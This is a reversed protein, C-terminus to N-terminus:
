EATAKWGFPEYRHDFSGDDYLDVIGYGEPVGRHAGKWWNGSVAGDCIYTVGDTTCRDLLHMHGSLCLPVNAGRLMAHIEGGDAHVLDGRLKVADGDRTKGYALPTVSIIPAHSVVLTPTSKPKASLTQELWAKQEADLECLYGDPRRQISDLVLIQWGGADFARYPRELGLLDLAYRKGHTPEDGTTGSKSHWGWIDHNGITPEVRLSGDRKLVERWLRGLREARPREQEFVDMVNDGGTLILDPRDEQSQVHALCAAFGAEANREPQVHIDSLHAVRLTRRRAAPPAPSRPASPGTSSSAGAQGLAAGGISAAAVSGLGLRIAERRTLPVPARESAM